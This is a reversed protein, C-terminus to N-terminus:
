NVGRIRVNRPAAKPAMSSDSISWPSCGYKNCASVRTKINSLDLSQTTVLVSANKVTGQLDKM